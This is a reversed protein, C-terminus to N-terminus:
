RDNHRWDRGNKKEWPKVSSGIKERLKWKSFCLILIFRLVCRKKPSVTDFMVQVDILLSFFRLQTLLIWKVAVLHACHRRMEKWNKANISISNRFQCPTFYNWVERLMRKEEKMELKRQKKAGIKGVPKQDDLGLSYGDDAAGTVTFLNWNIKKFCQCLLFFGQSWKTYTKNGPYFWIFVTTNIKGLWESKYLM